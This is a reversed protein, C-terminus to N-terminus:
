VDACRMELKEVDRLPEGKRLVVLRNKVQMRSAFKGLRTLVCDKIIGRHSWSLRRAFLWARSFGVSLVM